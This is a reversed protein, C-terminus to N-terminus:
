RHVHKANLIHTIQIGIDTTAARKRVRLEEEGLVESNPLKDYAVTDMYNSKLEM